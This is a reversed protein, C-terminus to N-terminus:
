GTKPNYCATVKLSIIHTGSKSIIIFAHMIWSFIVCQWDFALFDGLCDDSLDSIFVLWWDQLRLTLILNGDLQDVTKAKLCSPVLGFAVLSVLSQFVKHLSDCQVMIQTFIDTYHIYSLLVKYAPRQVNWNNHAKIPM